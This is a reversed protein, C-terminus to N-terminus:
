QFPLNQLIDVMLCPIQPNGRLRKKINTGRMVPEGKWFVLNWFLAYEPVSVRCFFLYTFQIELFCMSTNFEM